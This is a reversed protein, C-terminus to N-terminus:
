WDPQSRQYLEKNRWVRGKRFHFGFDAQSIVSFAFCSNSFLLCSISLAWLSQEPESILSSCFCYPKCLHRRWPIFRDTTCLICWCSWVLTLNLDFIAKCKCVSTWCWFGSNWPLMNTLFLWFTPRLHRAATWVPVFWSSHLRKWLHRSTLSNPLGVFRSSSCSTTWIPCWYLLLFSGLWCLSVHGYRRAFVCFLDRMSSCMWFHRWFHLYKLFISWYCKQQSLFIVLGLNPFIM